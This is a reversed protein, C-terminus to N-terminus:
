YQKWAVKLHCRTKDSLAEQEMRCYGRHGTNLAWSEVKSASELLAWMWMYRNTKPSFFYLTRTRSKKLNVHIGPTTASERVREVWEVERQDCCSYSILQSCSVNSQIAAGGTRLDSMDTVRRKEGTVSLM